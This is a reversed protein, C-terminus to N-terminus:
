GRRGPHTGLAQPKAEILNYPSATPIVRTMRFGARELLANYQAATRERADGGLLMELDGWKGIFDRNNEPIVLEVLVVTSDAGGGTRLNDLIALAKEDPWDHIIH